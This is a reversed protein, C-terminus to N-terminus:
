YCSLIKSELILCLLPGPSACVQLGLESEVLEHICIGMEWGGMAVSLEDVSAQVRLRKVSHSHYWCGVFLKRDTQNVSFEFILAFRGNQM